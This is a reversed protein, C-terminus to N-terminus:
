GMLVKWILFRALNVFDSSGLSGDDGEIWQISDIEDLRAFFNYEHDPLEHYYFNIYFDDVNVRVITEGTFHLITKGFKKSEILTTEGVNLDVVNGTDFLSKM